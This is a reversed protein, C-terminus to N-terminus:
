KKIYMYCIHKDSNFKGSNDSLQTQQDLMPFPTIGQILQKQMIPAPMPAIAVFQEGSTAKIVISQFSPVNCLTKVSPSTPLTKIQKSIQATSPSRLMRKEINFKHPSPLNLVSQQVRLRSASLEDKMKLSDKQLKISQEVKRFCKMCVGNDKDLDTNVKYGTVVSTIQSVRDLTLKLKLKFFKNEVRERTPM